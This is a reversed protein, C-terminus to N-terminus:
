EFFGRGATRGFKIILWVGDLENGSVRELEVVEGNSFRAAARNGKEEVEEVKARAFSLRFAPSPPTCNPIPRPGVRTCTVRECAPQSMYKCDALDSAAFLRAWSNATRVIRQRQPVFTGPPGDGNATPPAPGAGPPQQRRGGDDGGFVMVAVLVVAAAAGVALAARAAPWVLRRRPSRLRAAAAVLEQELEPIRTV